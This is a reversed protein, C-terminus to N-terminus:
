SRLVAVPRPAHLMCQHATSGLVLETFGGRGRSGVVLLQADRAAQLLGRSPFEDVAIRHIEVGTDNGIDSAMVDALLREANRQLSPYFDVLPPGPPTVYISYAHVLHLPVERETAQTLAWRVAANSPASGDVGVAIPRGGGSGADSELGHVVIVPSAQCHLLRQAVSGATIRHAIGPGRPGVVIMAATKANDALAQVPDENVVARRLEVPPDPMPVHAIVRDLTLDAAKTLGLYDANAAAQYVPRPVGDATWGLLATVPRSELLATAYAWRLASESGPSGDIGVLIERSDISM